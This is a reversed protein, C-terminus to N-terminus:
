EVEIITSPDDKAYFTNQGMATMIIVVLPMLYNFVAFPAYAMPAVHLVSKMYVGCTNWPVLASTVTGSAELTSSLM